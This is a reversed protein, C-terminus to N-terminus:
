KDRPELHSNVHLGDRRNGDVDIKKIKIPDSGIEEFRKVAEEPIATGEGGILKIDDPGVECLKVNYRKILIRGSKRGGIDEFEQWRGEPEM